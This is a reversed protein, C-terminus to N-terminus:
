ETTLDYDALLHDKTLYVMAFKRGTASAFRFYRIWAIKAGNREIGREAVDQEAIFQLGCFRAFNLDPRSVSRAKAPLIGLMKKVAAPGKGFASFDAEIERSLAPNTDRSPVLDAVLPGVKPIPHVWGGDFRVKLGVVQGKSDRTPTLQVGDDPQWYSGDSLPLYDNLGADPMHGVLRGKEAAVTLLYGGGWYEYRGTLMRLENPGIKPAALLKVPPAYRLGPVYLRAIATAMRETDAVGSQNALVIVTLKDHVFRAINGLFGNMAGNHRVVRHGRISSLFWGFGYGTAKGDNLTMPAWMAALSSKQLVNGHTLFMDWKALDLVTSYLSASGRFQTPSIQICNRLRGDVFLYGQARSRVITLPDNVDTSHMGAPRLLRESVFTRYSVGSVREIVMALLDYGLNSYSFREGPKSILPLKKASELIEDETFDSFFTKETTTIGNGELGATHTLLHRIRIDAWAAPVNPLYKSLRDDLGLKRNQVLLMVAAATFQKTISGIQYVTNPTATAGLELNAYGYGASKIVKGDRIVALSVGPIKDRLMRARVFDDVADAQCISSLAPVAIVLALFTRSFPKLPNMLYPQALLTVDRKRHRM